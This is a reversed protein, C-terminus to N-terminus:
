SNENIYIKARSQIVSAVEEATKQGAFYGATEETIINHLTEDYICLKDLSKLYNVLVQTEEETMPEVPIEMGGVYFYDDYEIKNGEEDLYYPKEWAKEELKRLSDARTPFEYELADQYEETFFSKVFEWAVEQHEGLASIAIPNSFSLGAGLGEDVPFGILTIDEGFVGQKTYSYDRFGSLYQLTLITKGNRYQTEMEEWYSADDMVTSYDIETPLTKAFELTKIFGDSDFFCEGTEWNVYQEGCIWSTYYLFSSSTIESLLQTGEPKSALLALAEDMTWGPETGVDATKAAFTTVTFSPAIRYLGDESSLAELINPLLDEKKLEEDKELFTSMDAFVGKSAYSEFPMQSNLIMIDPVDGSVIDANLRTLGQTYDEMTDYMSYDRINLRYEQNNKNFDILNQKARYDLYYCGVLLETKEVVEEPPVKVFKSLVVGQEGYYYAIFATEDIFTTQYLYSSAFDSSIYDMVKTLEADGINYGYIGYDDSLYIDYGVGDMVQYRYYNFPLITKEGMAGTKLDLTQIYASNGDSSIFGYKGDRIEVLRADNVNGKEIMKVPNGQTDYIEIGRSSDVIIQNQDNCYLGSVYYYEGEALNENLHIKWKESGDAGCSELYIKDTTDDGEYTAYQYMMSYINGESDAAFRGAGENMQMERSISNKMAGDMSFGTIKRLTTPANYVDEEVFEEATVETEVIAEAAAEEAVAINSANYVSATKERGQPMDYNYIYQEVYLTDGVVAIQSIEGEEIKFVDNEEKFIANKNMETTKTTTTEAGGCASLMFAAALITSVISRKKM